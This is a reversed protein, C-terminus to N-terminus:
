SPPAPKFQFRQVLVDSHDCVDGADMRRTHGTVWLSITPGGGSLPTLTVVSSPPFSAEDDLECQIIGGQKLEVLFANYIQGPTRTQYFVIIPASATGLKPNQMLGTSDPRQTCTQVVASHTLIALGV